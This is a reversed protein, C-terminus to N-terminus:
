TVDGGRKWADPANITAPLNSIIKRSSGNFDVELDAMRTSVPLPLGATTNAGISVERGTQVFGNSPSDFARTFVRGNLTLTVIQTTHNVDFTGEYWRLPLISPALGNSDLLGGVCIAAGLGDEIRVDLLGATGNFQLDNGLSEQSFIYSNDAPATPFYMKFRFTIRTTSAPVNAPDVFHTPTVANSTFFAAPVSAATWISASVAQGNVTASAVTQTIGSASSTARMQMYQMANATTPSATWARVVSLGAADSTIQVETGAGPTVTMGSPGFLIPLISTTTLTSLPVDFQSPYTLGVPLTTNLSQWGKGAAPGGPKVAFMAELSARLTAASTQDVSAVPAGAGGTFSGEFAAAYANGTQGVIVNGSAGVVDRAASIVHGINDVLAVRTCNADAYIRPPSSDANGDPYEIVTNNRVIMGLTGGGRWVNLGHLQNTVILNNQVIGEIPAPTDDMYVGHGGDRYHFINDHVEAYFEQDTTTAGLQIADVHENDWIADVCEDFFINNYVYYAPKPGAGFGLRLVDTVQRRATNRRVINAGGGITFGDLECDEVVSPLADSGGISLAQIWRTSPSASSTGGFRCNRAIWSKEVPYSVNTFSILQIYTHSQSKEIPPVGGVTNAGDITAQATFDLGDVIFPGCGIFEMREFIKPGYLTDACITVSGGSISAVAALDRSAADLGANPETLTGNFTQGLISTQGNTGYTGSRLRVKWDTSQNAARAATIAASLEALTRASYTSAEVTVTWKAANNFILTGATASGNATPVINGGTVTYGTATGGTISTAGAPAPVGGAGALTNAGFAVVPATPPAGGGGAGARRRGLKRFGNFPSSFSQTM